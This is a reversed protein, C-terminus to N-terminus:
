FLSTIDKRSFSIIHPLVINHYTVKSYFRTLVSAKIFLEINLILFDISLTSTCDKYLVSFLHLLEFQLHEYVGILFPCSYCKRM